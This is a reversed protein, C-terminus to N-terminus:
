QLLSWQLTRVDVSLFLFRRLPRGLFPKQVGSSNKDCLLFRSGDLIFGFHGVTATVLSFFWYVSHTSGSTSSSYIPDGLLPYINSPKWKFFPRLVDYDPLKVLWHCTQCVKSGLRWTTLWDTVFDPYTAVRDDLLQSIDVLWLSNPKYRCSLRSECPAM